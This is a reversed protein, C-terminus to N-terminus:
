IPGAESVLQQALSAVNSDTDADAGDALRAAARALSRWQTTSVGGLALRLALDLVLSQM